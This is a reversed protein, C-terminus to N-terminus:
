RKRVKGDLLVRLAPAPEKFLLCRLSVLDAIPPINLGSVNAVGQFQAQSADVTIEKIGASGFLAVNSTDVTFTSADVKTKVPATFRSVRLVVGDVVFPNAASGDGVAPSVFRVQVNQGVLMAGVGSFSNVLASNVNLGDRDVTFCSAGCSPQVTVSVPSGLLTSSSLSSANEEAVMKFSNTTPDVSFVIGEVEEVNVNVNVDGQELSIGKAVLAGGAMVLLDVDIKQGNQVCSFDPPNATCGTFDEFVTHSDVQIGKLINGASTLLDFTNTGKNQVTGFDDDSEDLQGGSQMQSEGVTVGGQQGFDVGSNTMVKDVNVDVKLEIDEGSDINLNSNFNINATLTGSPKAQCVDGPTVNVCTSFNMPASSTNQFTVKPNAFTLNLSTFPGSGAPVNATGLLATEIQLRNLEVQVVKGGLLDVNGPQLTAGVVNVEFSIIGAGAPPADIM